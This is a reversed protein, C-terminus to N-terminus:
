ERMDPSQAGSQGVSRAVEVVVIGFALDSQEVVVVTENSSGHGLFQSATSHKVIVSDTIPSKVHSALTALTIQVVNEVTGVAVPVEPEFTLASVANSFILFVSLVQALM